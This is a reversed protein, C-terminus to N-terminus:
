LIGLTPRTRRRPHHPPRLGSLQLHEVSTFRLTQKTLRVRLVRFSDREAQELESDTARPASWRYTFMIPPWSRTVRAFVSHAIVNRKMKALWVYGSRFAHFVPTSPVPTGSQATGFSSAWRSHSRASADGARARCVGPRRPGIWRGTGGPGCCGTLRGSGNRNRRAAPAPLQGSMRRAGGAM